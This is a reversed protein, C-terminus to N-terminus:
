RTVVRRPDLVDRLGDGLLNFGLAAIVIALGPLTVPWWQQPFYGQGESVLLGWESAPPRAGVGLYSIAAATLLIGSADLSAQVILPTLSNPLVHRFVIRPWGLGVARCAEIFGRGTVSAAEGRVLRVYWPWWSAAIALTMNRVSPAFVFAITLSLLLAPFALFVDTIRMIVADVLGGFYGALVGLPIGIAASIALVAAVIGLSTRAGFLIRSLLDRGLLDTGAPHTASPPMLSANPDIALGSKEPFPALWPAALAALVVLAVIVLGALLLPNNRLQGAAARLRPRTVTTTAV